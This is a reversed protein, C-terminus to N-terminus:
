VPWWLNVDGGSGNGNVSDRDRGQIMHTDNHVATTCLVACFLQSINDKNDEPCDKNSAHM